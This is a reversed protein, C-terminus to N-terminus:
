LILKDKETKVKLQWRLIIVTQYNLLVSFLVGNGDFEEWLLVLNSCIIINPVLLFYILTNWKLHNASSVLQLELQSCSYLQFRGKTAPPM